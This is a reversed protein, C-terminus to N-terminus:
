ICKFRHWNSKKVYEIIADHEKRYKSNDIM